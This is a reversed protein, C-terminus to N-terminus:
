SGSPMGPENPMEPRGAAGPGAAGSDEPGGPGGPGEGMLFHTRLELLEAGLPAVTVEDAMGDRARNWQLLGNEFLQMTYRQGDVASYSQFEETLPAGFVTMGGHANWYTLFANRIAHGTSPFFRQNPANAIPAIPAIAEYFSRGTPPNQNAELFWDVLAAVDDDSVQEPTFWPMAGPIGNRILGTLEQVLAPRPASAIEPPLPLLPPGIRGQANVGHCVACNKEFVQAGSLTAQASGPAAAAGGSQGIALVAAIVASAVVISGRAAFRTIIQSDVM